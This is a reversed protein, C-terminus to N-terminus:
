EQPQFRQLHKQFEPLQFVNTHHFDLIINLPCYPLIDRRSLKFLDDSFPWIDFLPLVVHGVEFSLQLRYSYERWLIALYAGLSKRFILKISYRRCDFRKEVSQFLYEDFRYTSGASSYVLQDRTSMAM